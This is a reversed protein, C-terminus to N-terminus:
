YKIIRTHKVANCHMCLPQINEIYDSGGKSLPIIHDETLKIESEVRKCCPCMYGYQKKLLEWEGFTHLSGKKNLRKVVRNRKNKLWCLYKKDKCVGGKWNSSEKGFHIKDPSLKKKKGRRNFKGLCSKNGKTRKSIADRLEKSSYTKKNSISIKRKTEESHKRCSHKYKGKPM